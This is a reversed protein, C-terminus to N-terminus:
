GELSVAGLRAAEPRDGGWGDEPPPGTEKQVVAGATALLMASRRGCSPGGSSRWARIRYGKSGPRGTTGGNLGSRWIGLGRKITQRMVAKTVRQENALVSLGADYCVFDVILRPDLSAQVCNRWWTRYTRRVDFRIEPDYFGGQVYWSKFYSGDHDSVAPMTRVILAQSVAPVLARLAECAIFEELSLRGARFEQVYPSLPAKKAWTEPTSELKALHVRAM